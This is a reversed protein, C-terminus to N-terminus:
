KEPKVEFEYKCNKCKVIVKKSLSSKPRPVAGKYVYNCRPCRTQKKSARSGLPKGPLDLPSM